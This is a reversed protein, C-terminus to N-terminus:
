LLGALHARLEKSSPLNQPDSQVYAVLRCEGKADPRAVVAAERVLHHKRLAVEVEGPEVRFGRIKAQDDLRGLFQITGDALYRARDGTRYLRGGSAGQSDAVFRASTLDPRHLYSRALSTGGIYLEGPTGIACLQGDPDLIQITANSIPRGI